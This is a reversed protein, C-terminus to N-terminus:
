APQRTVFLFLPHFYLLLLYGGSVTISLLPTFRNSSDKGFAFAINVIIHVLSVFPLVVFRGTIYVASWDWTAHTGSGYVVPLLEILVAGLLLLLAAPWAYLPM